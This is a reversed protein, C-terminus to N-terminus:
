NNKFNKTVYKYMETGKLEETSPNVRVYFHEGDLYFPETSKDCEVLLVRKGDVKYIDYNLFMHSSGSLRSKILDKITLLYKDNDKFQDQEIGTVYQHDHVGVLLNGGRSNLFGCITKLCSHRMKEDKQYNNKVNSHFTEKFEVFYNEGKRIMNKIEDEKVLQNTSNLINFLKQYLNDSNESNFQCVVEQEITKLENEIRQILDTNLNFFKITNEDLIPVSLNQFSQVSLQEIVSGNYLGLVDNVGYKSNLYGSLTVPDIRTDSFQFSKYGKLRKKDIQSSDKFPIVLDIESLGKIEKILLCSTNSEDVFSGLYKLRIWESSPFSKKLIEHRNDSFVRTINIECGVKDKERDMWSEPLYPKVEKKFFDDIDKSLPIREVDRKNPDPIPRGRDSLVIKGNEKSPQEIVVKTYGFLENNEILSFESDEFDNHIQTIVQIHDHSILKRKSGISREMLNFMSSGDILQVKGKRKSTKQNTLVWLYTSIGTNYYLQDPLCVICELWDNELIWRRIESEGSGSDGSFHPSGNFLVGIRSGEPKMKSIMHQLFLFSGDSTRPVGISFRGGEYKMEQEIFDKESRWNMGFPPNTIMYDFKQGQFQDNSMTSGLRIKDPDKGLMLMYSKCISHSHSNIEQGILNFSFNISENEYIWEQSFSLMGGTGCCPDYLSKVLGKDGLNEEGSLVLSVILQVVDRPTYYEGGRENSMESFKRILEEFISGMTHNDVLELNLDLESFTRVITILKQNRTLLDITKDFEFGDLIECIQDSSDEIYKGINEKLNKPDSVLIEFESHDPNILCDLRRLVLFPLIVDRYEHQKFLGRLVDDCVNWIFSSIENHNSM